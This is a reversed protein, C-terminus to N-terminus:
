FKDDHGEEGEDGEASEEETEGADERDDLEKCLSGLSRFARYVAEPNKTSIAGILARAADKASAKAEGLGPEGSEDGDPEGHSPKGALM